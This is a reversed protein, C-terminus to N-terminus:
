LRNNGYAKVVAEDFYNVSMGADVTIQAANIGSSMPSLLFLATNAVEQTSLGSHRLTLQESFIYNDVYNPIGASASTKLPGAGISNCRIKTDKSLSKALYDVTSNLLAKIPGMFGYSTVKTTSISLTVISADDTFIPRLHHCMEMLSFSSIRIAESFADWPTQEFSWEPNMRAFAVSHVFGHLSNKDLQRALNEIDHTTQVDCGYVEAHPFQKKVFEMQEPFQTTFVLQANLGQLSKAIYYAVSKKNNIGTILFKKGEFNMM